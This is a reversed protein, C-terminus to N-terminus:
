CMGPAHTPVPCGPAQSPKADSGPGTGGTLHRQKTISDPPPPPPNFQGGRSKPQGVSGRPPLAQGVNGMSM